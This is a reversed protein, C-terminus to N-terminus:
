KVLVVPNVRTAEAVGATTRIKTNRGQINVGLAGSNHIGYDAFFHGLNLQTGTPSAGARTSPVYADNMSWSRSSKYPGLVINDSLLLAQERIGTVNFAASAALADFETTQFNMVGLLRNGNVTTFNEEGVAGSTYSDRIFKIYGIPDPQVDSTIGEVTVDYARGDITTDAAWDLELQIGKGVPLGYNRTDDLPFPTFPQTLSFAKPQNDVTLANNTIFQPVGVNPMFDFLDDADISSEPQSNTTSYRVQTLEDVVGQFTDAASAVLLGFTDIHVAHAVFGFKIDETLTTAAAGPARQNRVSAVIKGM